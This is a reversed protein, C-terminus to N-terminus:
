PPLKGKECVYTAWAKLDPAALDFSGVVQDVDVLPRRGPLAAVPRRTKPDCMAWRVATGATHVEVDSVGGSPALSWQPGETIGQRLNFINEPEGDKLWTRWRGDSQGHVFAGEVKLQGTPYWERRMGHKVYSGKDDREQCYEETGDPPHKGAKETGIPCDGWFLWKGHVQEDQWKGWLWWAGLGLLALFVLCGWGSNTDDSSM